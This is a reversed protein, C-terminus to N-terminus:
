DRRVVILNLSVTASRGDYVKNQLWGLDVPINQRTSPYVKINNFGMKKIMKITFDQKWMADEIIYVDKFRDKLLHFTRIIDKYHHSGDDVIVDYSQDLHNLVEPKTSDTIVIKAEAMEIYKPIFNKNTIDAGTIDCMPFALKWAALSRGQMVGVELLSEPVYDKFIEAYWRDYQHVFGKDTEAQDFALKFKNM